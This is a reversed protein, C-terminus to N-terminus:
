KYLIYPQECIGNHSKIKTPPLQITLKETYSTNVDNCLNKYIIKKNCKVDNLRCIDEPKCISIKYM